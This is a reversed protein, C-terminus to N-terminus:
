EAKVTLRKIARSKGYTASVLLAKGCRTRYLYNREEGDVTRQLLELPPAAQAPCARLLPAAEAAPDVAMHAVAAAVEKTVEPEVDEIPKLAQAMACGSALAVPLLLSFLRHM